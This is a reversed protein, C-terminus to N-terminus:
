SGPALFLIMALTVLALLATQLSMAIFPWRGVEAVEALSTKVGLAAVAIVLLWRSLEGIVSAAADPILGFSNVLVLACFAVLFVPMGVRSQGDANRFLLSIVLVLPALCAVRILKIVTSTEGAPDSVSYGAGVVQAVDHISAGLFIGAQIDDFGLLGALVPYFIMAFTSLGTVTVVTVITHRANAANKPLVSAIALAASAGCVAVAGASLLSRPLDLRCLRGILSGALMTTVLAGVVLAVSSWGLVELDAFSIRVGLLAVGVRLVHTTSLEIGAQCNEHKALFNFAMGLLLAYVMVPGGYHDSIFTAAVAITFALLLGSRM